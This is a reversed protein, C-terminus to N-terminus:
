NDCVCAANARADLHKKAAVPDEPVPQTVRMYKAALAVWPVTFAFVVAAKAAADWPKATGEVATEGAVTTKTRRAAPRVVVTMRTTVRAGSSAAAGRAM